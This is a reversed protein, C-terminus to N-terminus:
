LSLLWGTLSAIHDDRTLNAANTLEGANLMQWIETAMKTEIAAGIFFIHPTANHKTFARRIRQIASGATKWHEDAGAPDIGGKLEGLAIYRGAIAYLEKSIDEPSCRLLCLDVNNKVIPVSLDFLLTRAKSSLGWSLGRIKAEADPAYRAGEVWAHAGSALWRYKTGSLNLDAILSWTLKLQAMFGGINRMSGGLTDGRTLLFRFVLEEIFSKGAPELFKSILQAIAENKDPEQIHRAAKDSVGAAALLGSGIEPLKLLDAPIKAKSAAYKLNRAEVVYPTGRRNKEIALAVFGARVAERTTCLDESGHLHQFYAKAM